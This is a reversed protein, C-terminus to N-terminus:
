WLPHFPSPSLKNRLHTPHFSIQPTPPFLHSKTHAQLEGTVHHPALIVLFSMRRSITSTMTRGSHLGIAKNTHYMPWSTKRSSFQSNYTEVHIELRRRWSKACIQFTNKLVTMALTANAFTFSASATRRYLFKQLTIEVETIKIEIM